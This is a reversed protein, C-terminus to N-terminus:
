FHENKMSFKGILCCCRFSFVLQKLFGELRIPCHRISFSLNTDNYLLPNYSEELSGRGRVKGKSSISFISTLNVKKTSSKPSIIRNSEFTNVSLQKLPAKAM